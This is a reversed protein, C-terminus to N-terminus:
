YVSVGSGEKTQTYFSLLAHVCSKNRVVVIEASSYSHHLLSADGM